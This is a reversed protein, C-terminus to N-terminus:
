YPRVYTDFGAAQLTAALQDAATRDLKDGVRVRYLNDKSVIPAFGHARLQEALLDANAQDRLAGVQVTYRTPQPGAPPGVPTPPSVLVIPTRKSGGAEPSPPQAVGVKVKTSDAGGSPAQSPAPAVASPPAPTVSTATQEPTVAPH